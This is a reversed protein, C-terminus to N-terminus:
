RNLNWYKVNDISVIAMGESVTIGIAIDNGAQLPGNSYLIPRNDVYAAAQNGQVIITVKTPQELSPISSQCNSLIKNSTAAGSEAFECWGDSNFDFHDFNGSADARFSLGPTLIQSATKIVTFSYQFVFDSSNVTLGMGQWQSIAAIKAQEHTLTVGDLYNWQNLSRDPNSFDDQFDPPRNAIQSLIPEAFSKIWGNGAGAMSATDYAQMTAVDDIMSTLIPTITAVQFSSSPLTNVTSTPVPTITAVLFSSSHPTVITFTPFPTINSFIRSFLPLSRKGALGFYAIAALIIILIPALIWLAGNKKRIRAPKAPPVPAPKEDKVQSVPKVPENVEVPNPINTEDKPAPSQELLKHVAESLNHLQRSFVANSADLWHRNSLYYEMAKSLITNDIRFTLISLNKSVAREVERRVQSSSNSEESLIVLFLQCNNLAEIIADAYEEGPLIDRPAIWCRIDEAELVKCVAKAVEADKSAYSIFVKHIM